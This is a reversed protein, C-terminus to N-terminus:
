STTSKISTKLMNIFKKAKDRFDSKESPSSLIGDKGEGKVYLGFLIMGLLGLIFTMGSVIWTIKKFGSVQSIREQAFKKDAETSSATINKTINDDCSGAVVFGLIGLGFAIIVGILYVITFPWTQDQNLLLKWIGAVVITLGAVVGMGISAYYNNNSGGCKGTLSGAMGATIISLAMCISFFVQHVVIKM